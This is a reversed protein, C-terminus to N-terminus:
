VEKNLEKLKEAMKEALRRINFLLIIEEKEDDTLLYKKIAELFDVFSLDKSPNIICDLVYILDKDTKNINEVQNLSEDSLGLHEKMEKHEVIWDKTRGYIYDLSVNFIDSYIIAKDVTLGRAGTEWQSVTQKGVGDAIVFNNDRSHIEEALDAQTRKSNKRLQQLNKGIQKKIDKEM